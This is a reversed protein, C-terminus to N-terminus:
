FTQFNWNKISKNQINSSVYYIEQKGLVNETVQRMFCFVKFAPVEACLVEKDTVFKMHRYMVIYLIRKEHLLIIDTMQFLTIDRPM